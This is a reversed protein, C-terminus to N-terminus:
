AFGVTTSCVGCGKSTAKVFCLAERGKAGKTCGQFICRQEGGHAKRFATSDQIGKTCGESCCLRSGDGTAVTPFTSGGKGRRAEAVGKWGCQKGGGHRICLRSRGPAVKPAGRPTVVDAARTTPLATKLRAKPVKQTASTSAGGGASTPWATPARAKLKRTAVETERM